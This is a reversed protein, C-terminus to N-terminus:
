GKNRKGFSTIQILDKAPFFFSRNLIVIRDGELASSVLNGLRGQTRSPGFAPNHNMETQISAEMDKM